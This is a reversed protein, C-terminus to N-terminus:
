RAHLVNVKKGVKVISRTVEETKSLVTQNKEFLDQYNKEAQNTKVKVENRPVKYEAHIKM